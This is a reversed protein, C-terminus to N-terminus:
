SAICDDIPIVEIDSLLGARHSGVRRDIAVFSRDRSPFAIVTGLRLTRARRPGPPVYRVLRGISLKTDGRLEKKAAMLLEARNPAVVGKALRRRAVLLQSSVVKDSAPHKDRIRRSKSAPKTDVLERRNRGMRARASDPVYRLHLRGNQKSKAELCRAGGQVYMWEQSGGERAMLTL